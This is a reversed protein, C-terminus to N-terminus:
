DTGADQGGGGSGIHLPDCVPDGPHTVNCIRCDIPDDQGLRCTQTATTTGTGLCNPQPMKSTDISDPPFWVLCGICVDIPFLFESSEVSSGGLTQGFVKVRTTVRTLQNGKAQLQTKLKSSTAADILITEILGYAPQGTQAEKIFGSGPVTYPGAITEGKNNEITVESGQLQIQSSEPRIPTRSSRAIIQSGILLNARYESRLVTDLV